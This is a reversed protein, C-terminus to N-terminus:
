GRSAVTVPRYVPKSLWKPKIQGGFIYWHESGGVSHFEDLWWDPYGMLPAVSVWRHLHSRESEPVLVEFRAATRSYSIHHQTAWGQADWSPDDTLWQWGMRIARQDPSLVGGKTLGHRVIGEVMHAPAFHYLKM